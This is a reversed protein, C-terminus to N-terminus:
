KKDLSMGCKHCVRTRRTMGGALKTWMISSASRDANGACSDDREFGRDASGKGCHRRCDAQGSEEAHAEQDHERAGRSHPGIAAIVGLVRGTKGRDRGAIVKVQDNKKLQIRVPRSKEKKLAASM